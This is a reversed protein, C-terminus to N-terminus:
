DFHKVALTENYDGAVAAIAWEVLVAGENDSFGAGLVENIDDNMFFSARHGPPLVVTGGEGLVSLGGSTTRVLLAGHPAGPLFYGDPAPADIVGEPGHFDWFPIVRWFGSSGIDLTLTANSVNHIQVGQRSKGSVAFDGSFTDAAAVNTLAFLSLTLALTKMM